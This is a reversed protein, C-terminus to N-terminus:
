PPLDVASLDVRERFLHRKFRDRLSSLRGRLKHRIREEQVSESCFEVTDGDFLPVVQVYFCVPYRTNDERISKGIAEGGYPERNMLSLYADGRYFDSQFEQKVDRSFANLGNLDLM